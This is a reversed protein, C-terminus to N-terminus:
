SRGAQAPLVIICNLNPSRAQMSGACNISERFCANSALFSNRRSPGFPVAWLILRDGGPVIPYEGNDVVFGM